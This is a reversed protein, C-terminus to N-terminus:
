LADIDSPAWADESTTRATPHEAEVDSLGPGAVELMMSTTEHASILRSEALMAPSTRPQPEMGGLFAMVLATACAGAAVPWLSIAAATLLAARLASM